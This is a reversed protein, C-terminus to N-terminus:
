AHYGEYPFGNKYVENIHMLLKKSKKLQDTQTQKLDNKELEPIINMKQSDKIFVNLMILCWCLGFLCYSTNLRQIFTNDNYFIEKM